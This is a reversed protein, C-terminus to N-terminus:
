NLNLSDCYMAEIAPLPDEELWVVEEDIQRAHKALAHAVTNASHKVFSVELRRLSTAIYKVDEYVHGLRSMNPQPSTISEMVINNDGKLVLEIFRAEIAFKLARRCALVKAEESDQMPPGCASLMAMAEGKDNRVIVGVGSANIEAFVAADFNIKYSSGVSPEWKQVLGTSNHIALLEMTGCYEQLVDTARKVLRSPDQLM